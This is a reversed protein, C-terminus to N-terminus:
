QHRLHDESIKVEIEEHNLSTDKTEKKGEESRSKMSPLSQMQEERLPLDAAETLKDSGVEGRNIMEVEPDILEPRTQGLIKLM